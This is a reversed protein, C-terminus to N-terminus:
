AALRQDPTAAAIYRGRAVKAAGPTIGCLRAAGEPTGTRAWADRFRAVMAPDRWNARKLTGPKAPLRVPGLKAECRVWALGFAKGVEARQKPTMAQLAEVYEQSAAYRTMDGLSAMKALRKLAIIQHGRPTRM